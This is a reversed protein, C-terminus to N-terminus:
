LSRLKAQIALLDAWADRKALPSKILNAPHAMPMAPRGLVEVWNGRLRTVGGKDLLMQCATNGMLILLDPNALTIHRELFPVMMAIDTPDPVGDGTVRWPMPAALYVGEATPTAAVSLHIAALMKDLLNGEVGSFPTGAADDTRSPAEGIVMVRSAPDGKAFVLKRAGRKLNCHEFGELAARLGGIDAAASAASKAVAVCDIEPVVHVPPPTGKKPGAGQPNPEPKPPAPELAYRNISTESIAEDAGLEVQWDLLALDRWYTEASEMAEEYGALPVLPLRTTAPRM